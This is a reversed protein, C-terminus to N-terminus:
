CIWNFCACLNLENVRKDSWLFYMRARESRKFALLLWCLHCSGECVIVALVYCCNEKDKICTSPKPPILRDALKLNLLLMAVCHCRRASTPASSRRDAVFLCTVDVSASQSSSLPKGSTRISDGVIAMGPTDSTSKSSSSEECSTNSTVEQEMPSTMM